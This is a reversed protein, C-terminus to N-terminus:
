RHPAQQQLRQMVAMTDIVPHVDSNWFDLMPDIFKQLKEVSDTDVILFGTHGPTDTYAGIIRIGIEDAQRYANSIGQLSEPKHSPCNEHSHTQVLVFLM